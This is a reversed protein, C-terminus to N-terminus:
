GFRAIFRHGRAAIGHVNKRTVRFFAGMFRKGLEIGAVIRSHVTVGIINGDDAYFASVQVFIIGAFLANPWALEEENRTAMFVPTAAILGFAGHKILFTGPLEVDYWRLLSLARVM